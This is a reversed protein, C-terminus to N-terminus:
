SVRQGCLCWHFFDPMMLLCDAAELVGPHQRRMALLQYLTNLEMFQLGTDAFIQARPIRKFARAFAGRTRADRYHYPQGLLEGSKSLLAFDVGWTDVGLSRVARGFRRGAVALGNQIDAWLRLVDWRLTGGIEVPVNPFRYLEELRMTRGTWSGAM